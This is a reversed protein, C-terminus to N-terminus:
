KGVRDKKLMKPYSRPARLFGKAILFSKVKFSTSLKKYKKFLVCLGFGSLMLFIGLRLNGSNLLFIGPLIGAAAVLWEDLTLGLYRLPRSVSWFLRQQYNKSM